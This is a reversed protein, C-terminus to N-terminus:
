GDSLCINGSYVIANWGQVFDRGRGTFGKGSLSSWFSSWTAVSLFPRLWPEGPSDEGSWQWNPSKGRWGEKKQPSGGLIDCGLVGIHRTNSSGAAHTVCPEKMRLPPFTGRIEPQDQHSLSEEKRWRRNGWWRCFAPFKLPQNEGMLLGQKERARRVREDQSVAWVTLAVHGRGGASARRGTCRWPGPCEVAISMWEASIWSQAPCQPVPM